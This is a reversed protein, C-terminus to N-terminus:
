IFLVRFTSDYARRNSDDNLAFVAKVVGDPPRDDGALAVAVGADREAFFKNFFDRLDTAM